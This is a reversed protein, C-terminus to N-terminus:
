FAALIGKVDVLDLGMTQLEFRLTDFGVGLGDEEKGEVDEFLDRLNEGLTAVINDIQSTENEVEGEKASKEDKDESQVAQANTERLLYLARGGFLLFVEDGVRCKPTGIGIHGDLTVFLTRNLDVSKGFREAPTSRVSRFDDERTERDTWDLWTVLTESSSVSFHGSDGTDRRQPSSSPSTNLFTHMATVLADNPHPTGAEKTGATITTAFDYEISNPGNYKIAAKGKGNHHLLIGQIIGLLKQVAKPSNREYKSLPLLYEDFIISISTLKAGKLKLSKEEEENRPKAYVIPRTGAPSCLHKPDVGWLGPPHHCSDCHYDWRPIWSPFEATGVDKEWPRRLECNVVPRLVDLVGEGFAQGGINKKHEPLLDLIPRERPMSLFHRVVNGYISWVPKTYDPRLLSRADFDRSEEMSPLGLVAFIKDRPDTAHFITVTEIQPLFHNEFRLNYVRVARQIHQIDLALIDYRKRRLYACALFLSFSPLPHPGFFFTTQSARAFEQLIWVRTFWMSSLLQTFIKWSPGAHEVWSKIKNNSAATAKQDANSLTKAIQHQDPASEASAKGRVINAMEEVMNALLQFDDTPFNLEGLWILVRSSRSYIDKMLMVQSSREFLDNQNICIADVWVKRPKTAFPQRIRHLADNLNPTVFIPFGDCTIEALPNPDGWVYSLAEFPPCNNLDHVELSCSITEYSLGPHVNLIRIANVHLKSYLYEAQATNWTGARGIFHPRHPRPLHDHIHQKVRHGHYIILEEM